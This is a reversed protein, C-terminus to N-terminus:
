RCFDYLPFKPTEVRGRPGGISISLAAYPQCRRHSCASESSIRHHYPTTLRPVLVLVYTGVACPLGMERWTRNRPWIPHGERDSGPIVRKTPGSVSGGRDLSEYNVNKLSFYFLQVRTNEAKKRGWVSKGGKSKRYVCLCQYRKRYWCSPEIEREWCILFVASSLWCMNTKSRKSEIDLGRKSWPFPLVRSALYYLLYTANLSKEPFTNQSLFFLAGNSSWLEHIRLHFWYCSKLIINLFIKKSKENHEKQLFWENIAM